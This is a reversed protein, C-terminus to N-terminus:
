FVIRMGRSVCIVVSVDRNSVKYGHVPINNTFSLERRSLASSRFVCDEGLYLLFGCLAYVDAKHPMKESLLQEEAKDGIGAANMYYLPFMGLVPKYNIDPM